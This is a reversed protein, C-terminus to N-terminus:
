YTNKESLIDLIEGKFLLNSADKLTTSDKFEYEKFIKNIQSKFEKINSKIYENSKSSEFINLINKNKEKLIDDHLKLINKIKNIGDFYSDCKGIIIKDNHADVNNEEAEKTKIENNNNNINGKYFTGLKEIEEKIQSNVNEIENHISNNFM